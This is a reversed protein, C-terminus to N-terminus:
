EDQQRRREEMKKRIREDRQNMQEQLEPDVEFPKEEEPVYVPNDAMNKKLWKTIFAQTGERHTNEILWLRMEKLQQDVNVTPFTQKLIQIYEPTLNEFEKKTRNFSIKLVGGGGRPKVKQTKQTPIDPKKPEERHNTINKTINYIDAGVNVEDRGRCKHRTQQSLPEFNEQPLVAKLIRTRGNFAVQILLGKRKLNLMMRQIQREHIDFFKTLYENSAFCGGKERDYLSHIEAWLVKEHITLDEALWIEQPIWIGKFDRNM